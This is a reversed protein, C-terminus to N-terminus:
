KKLRWTECLSDGLEASYLFKANCLTFCPTVKRNYNKLVLNWQILFATNNQSKRNEFIDIIKTFYEEKKQKHIYLSKLESLNKINKNQLM